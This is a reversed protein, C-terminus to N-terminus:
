ARWATCGRRHPPPAAAAHAPRGAFTMALWLNALTGHAVRDRDFPHFMMAADVGAFVGADLLLAKGGGGEEAPTGVLDVTFGQAEAVPALALFAGM